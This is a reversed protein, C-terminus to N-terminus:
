GVPDNEDVLAGLRVRRSKALINALMLQISFVLAPLAMLGVFLGFVDVWVVGGLGLVLLSFSAAITLIPGKNHVLWASACFGFLGAIM